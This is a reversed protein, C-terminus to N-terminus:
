IHILSLNKLHLVHQKEDVEYSYYHRGQSGALEYTRDDDNTHIEETNTLDLKVSRNSKISLTNWKEFVVDQWRTSDTKSYPLPTSNVKFESVNYIRDRICM